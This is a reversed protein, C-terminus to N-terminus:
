ASKALSLYNRYASKKSEMVASYVREEGGEILQRLSAPLDLEGPNFQVGCRRIEFIRYYSGKAREPRDYIIRCRVPPVHLRYGDHFYFELESGEDILSYCPIYEFSLGGSGVDLVTGILSHNPIFVKYTGKDVQHRKWKRRDIKMDTNMEEIGEKYFAAAEM